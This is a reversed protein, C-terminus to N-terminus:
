KIIISNGNKVRNVNKQNIIFKNQSIRKIFNEKCYQLVADMYSIKKDRVIQEIHMSFDNSSKFIRNRDATVLPNSMNKSGTNVTEFTKLWNLM